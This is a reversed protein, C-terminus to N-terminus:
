ATRPVAVARPSLATISAARCAIEHGSISWVPMRPARLTSSFTVPEVRSPSCSTFSAHWIIRWAVPRLSTCTFKPSAKLSAMASLTFTVRIAM